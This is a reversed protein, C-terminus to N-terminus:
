APYGHLGFQLNLTEEDNNTTELVQAWMKTGAIHREDILEVPAKVKDLNDVFLPITLYTDAIVGAAASTGAIIRIYWDLKNAGADFPRLRHLDYFAQDGAPLCVAADTSGFIQVAPGWTKNAGSTFQFSTQVGAPTGGVEGLPDAIHTEGVSIAAPGIWREYAHMHHEVIETEAYTTRLLAVLSATGATDSAADLKNGVVDRMSINTIANAAPVALTLCQSEILKAYAMLSTGAVTDNKNGVVDCVLANAASDADPVLCQSEILKLYAMLSTGAITDDKNGIVDRMLANVVSNIAPVVLTACQSEILKLYAMLSDGAATDSKNGVVESTYTNGASDVGPVTTAASEAVVLNGDDDVHLPIRVGDLNNLYLQPM